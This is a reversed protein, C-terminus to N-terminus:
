PKATSCGLQKYINLLCAPAYTFTYGFQIEESIMLSSIHLLNGFLVTAPKLMTDYPRKLLIM